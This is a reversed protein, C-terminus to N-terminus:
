LAVFTAAVLAQGRKDAFPSGELQNMAYAFTMRADFDVIILSGGSGGWLCVRRGRPVPLGMSSLAYGMGFRVPALFALDPGDSQQQFVAECGARSMIRRGNVDGGCALLSQIRAISRANGFGNGAPIEARRWGEEWTKERLLGPNLHVKMGISGPGSAPEEPNAPLVGLSVRHDESPPLGIYFDGGLPAALERAFFTGLTQGTIRRVVEGVLYGQTLAHYGSATGPTWWPAQRALLGCVKDWDFIDDFALQEDWTPLGATHGLAHRVLVGEKGAAAFEPWYRAIPADLDLEGQDALFLATLATMTKTTSFVTVLTDSRWPTTRAADAAGGWLDVVLEGDITIAVSAGVDFGQRLNNDFAARVGAFREDCQGQVPFYATAAGM